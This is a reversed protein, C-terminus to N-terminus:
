HPCCSLSLFWVSWWYCMRCHRWVLLLFYTLEIRLHSSLMWWIMLDSSTSEEPLCVAIGTRCGPWQPVSALGRKRWGPLPWLLTFRLRIFAEAERCQGALNTFSSRSGLKWKTMRWSLWTALTRWPLVTGIGSCLPGPSLSCSSLWVVASLVDSWGWLLPSCFPFWRSEGNM